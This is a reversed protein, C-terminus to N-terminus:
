AHATELDEIRACAIAALDKPPDPRAVAEASMGEPTRRIVVNVKVWDDREGPYDARTHAGRSEQLHSTM